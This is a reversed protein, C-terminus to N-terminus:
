WEVRAIEIFGGQGGATDRRGFSYGANAHLFFPNGPTGNYWVCYYGEVQCIGEAYTSNDTNIRIHGGNYNAGGAVNGAHYWYSAVPFVNPQKKNATVRGGGSHYGQPITVSGGPDITTGWAGRNGGAVAVYGAGNHYGQPIGVNGGSYTGAWAGRDGGPVSVSGGGNHYGQPIGVSGTVSSSWAGRNGGPLANIVDNIFACISRTVKAGLSQTETDANQLYLYIRDGDGPNYRVVNKALPEYGYDPMTGTKREKGGAYFTKGALVDAAAANAEALKGKSVGDGGATMLGM